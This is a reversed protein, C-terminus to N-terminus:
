SASLIELIQANEYTVASPTNQEDGGSKKSRAYNEADKVLAKAVTGVPITSM